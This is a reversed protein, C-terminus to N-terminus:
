ASATWAFSELDERWGNDDMGGRGRQQVGRDIWPQWGRQVRCRFRKGSFNKTDAFDMEARWGNEHIGFGQKSALLGIEGGASFAAASVFERPHLPVSSRTWQQGGDKTMFVSGQDGALLGIEGGASFAAASVFERPQLPVSSRTWQQGGDRTMLVSRRNGAILGTKGNASFAAVDAQERPQLPVSSRTWNQGGDRTMLVSAKNARLWDFKKRPYAMAWENPKDTKLWYRGDLMYQIRQGFIDQFQIHKAVIPDNIVIKRLGFLVFYAGGLLLVFVGGLILKAQVRLFFARKRLKLAIWWDRHSLGDKNEDAEKEWEAKKSKFEQCLGIYCFWIWTLYGGVLAVALAYVWPKMALQELFFQATVGVGEVRISTQAPLLLAVSYVLGFVFFSVSILGAIWKLVVRFDKNSTSKTKEVIRNETMM